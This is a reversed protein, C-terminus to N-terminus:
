VVATNALGRQTTGDKRFHTYNRSNHPGLDHGPPGGELQRGDSGLRIDFLILSYSHMSKDNFCRVGGLIAGKDYTLDVGKAKEVVKLPTTIGPNMGPPSEDLRGRFFFSQQTHRQDHAWLRPRHAHTLEGFFIEFSEVDGVLAM